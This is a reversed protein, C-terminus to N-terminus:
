LQAKLSALFKGIGRSIVSRALMPDNFMYGIAWLCLGLGLDWKNKILKSVLGLNQQTVAQVDTLIQKTSLYNAILKQGLSLNQDMHKTSFFGPYSRAGLVNDPHQRYAYLPSNICVSQNLVSAILAYWHDHYPISMPLQGYNRALNADFLASAGAVTNRIVLHCAKQNHVGCKEIQNKTLASKTWTNNQQDLELINMDCNVLANAGLQELAQKSTQLKDSYWIDDQDSCAIAQVDEKACLQIAKSFNDKSGLRSENEHWVFRPDEFFPKLQSNDQIEALPSDCTIHCVWNSFTQRKISELQQQFFEPNPKYAALAIGIKKIDLNSTKAM